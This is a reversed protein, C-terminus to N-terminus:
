NTFQLTTVSTSVSVVNNIMTVNPSTGIQGFMATDAAGPNGISPSWNANVNWNNAGPSAVNWLYITASARSATVFILALATITAFDAFGSSIPTAKM